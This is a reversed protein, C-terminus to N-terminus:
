RRQSKKSKRQNKKSKGGKNKKSKNRRRGGTNVPHSLQEFIKKVEIEDNYKKVADNDIVRYNDDYVKKMIGIKSKISNINTITENINNIVNNYSENRAENNTRNLGLKTTISSWQGKYKRPNTELDNKIEDLYGKKEDYKYNLVNNKFDNNNEENNKTKNYYIVAEQLTNSDPGYSSVLPTYARFVPGSETITSHDNIKKLNDNINRAIGNVEVAITNIAHSEESM